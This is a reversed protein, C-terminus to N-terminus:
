GIEINDWHWTHGIPVGDKDPTYNHDKFYVEFGDPFRGAVTQTHFGGYDITLTGDDNDTVSFTRRTPKSECGEPDLGFDGCMGQWGDYVNQGGVTIGVDGGFPGNSIVVADPHYTGINAVDALWDATALFETGVPIISVEWWQRGGLDTVNVDWSVTKTQSQVFRTRPSFWVISYNDVDGMTTMLHDRCTYVLEDVAFDASVTQGDVIKTSELTRQTDPLGCSLDHDGTWTGGHASNADGWIDAERGLEQSGLNRHYVGVRFRDLGGNGDFREVFGSGDEPMPILSRSGGTDTGPDPMVSPGSDADPDPVVLPPAEATPSPAGQSAGETATPENNNLLSPVAAGVVALVAAAVLAVYALRSRDVPARGHHGDALRRRMDDGARALMAPDVTVVPRALRILDLPDAADIREAM